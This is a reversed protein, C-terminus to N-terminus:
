AKFFERWNPFLQGVAGDHVSVDQVPIDMRDPIPDSVSPPSLLASRDPAADPLPYDPLDRGEADPLQYPDLAGEVLPSPPQSPAPPPYQVVEEGLTDTRSSPVEPTEPLTPIAGPLSPVEFGLGVVKEVVDLFDTGKDQPM